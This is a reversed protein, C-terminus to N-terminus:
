SAEKKNALLKKADVYVANRFIREFEFMLSRATMANHRIKDATDMLPQLYHFVVNRKDLDRFSAYHCYIKQVKDYLIFSLQETNYTNDFIDNILNDPTLDFVENGFSPNNRIAQNIEDKSGTFTLIEIENDLYVTHLDKLSQVAISEKQSKDIKPTKFSSCTIRWNTKYDADLDSKELYHIFLGVSETTDEIINLIKLLLPALQDSLM